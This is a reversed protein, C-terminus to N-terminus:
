ESTVRFPPAMEKDRPTDTVYLVGKTMTVFALAFGINWLIYLSV